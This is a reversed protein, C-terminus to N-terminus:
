GPSLALKGAFAIVAQACVLPNAQLLPHPGAIDVIDARGM